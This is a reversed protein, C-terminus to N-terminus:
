PTKRRASRRRIAAPIIIYFMAIRSLMRRRVRRATDVDRASSAKLAEGRTRLLERRGDELGEEVVSGARDGTESRSADFMNYAEIFVYSPIKEVGARNYLIPVRPFIATHITSERIRSIPDHIPSAILKPFARDRTEVHGKFLKRASSRALSGAFLRVLSRALARV